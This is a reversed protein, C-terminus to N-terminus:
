CARVDCTHCVCLGNPIDGVHIRWSTRHAIEFKGKRIAFQGYGNANFAANWLWCEETKVVKALFREPMDTKRSDWYCRNGCFKLARDQEKLRWHPFSFPEGCRECTKTIRNVEPRM